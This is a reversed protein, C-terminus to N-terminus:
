DMERRGQLAKMLTYEDTYELAAGVPLGHALRSIKVGLPKILRSLYMATTDGEVTPNTAIIIEKVQQKELRKLLSRINLDETGVGEMPDLVGNLVHYLGKYNQTKEVALVDRSHEVVCILSRDRNPDSCISCPDTDTLNGCESCYKVKDRVEVLANALDHAVQPPSNLIYFALRQASKPGIGPLKAFEEILRTVSGAFHKM